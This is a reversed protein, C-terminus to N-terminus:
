TGDNGVKSHEVQCLRFECYGLGVPNQPRPAAKREGYPSGRIFGNPESDYKGCDLLVPIELNRDWCPRWEKSEAIRFILFKHQGGCPESTHPGSVDRLNPM